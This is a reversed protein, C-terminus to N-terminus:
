VGDYDEQAWFMGSCLLCPCAATDSGMMGDVLGMADGGGCKGAQSGNREQMVENIRLQM